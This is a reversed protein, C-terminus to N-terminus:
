WISLGKLSSVFPYASFIQRLVYDYCSCSLNFRSSLSVCFVALRYCKLFCQLDPHLLGRMEVPMNFLPSLTPALASFESSPFFFSNSSPILYGGSSYLNPVYFILVLPKFFALSDSILVVCNLFSLFFGLFVLFFLFFM